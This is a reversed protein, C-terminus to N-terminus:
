KEIYIKKMQEMVISIDFKRVDTQAAAGMEPTTKALADAFAAADLPNCVLGSHGHRILDVNGRTRSVVCPLGAAMAEMLSLSLGERLSPFVFIDAMHLLNVIDDRYGLLILQHSINREAAMQRLKNEQNGEGAIIYYAGKDMAQIVIQHNKNKNLEGISLLVKANQPIGFHARMEDRSIIPQTFKDCDVGIGPIYHVRAAKIKNKAITYDESNLTILDDTYRALWKEIPYYLLWNIAPASKYFHFGHATYIIRAGTRRAALRTLVGGMPTHCHIVDYKEARIIARLRRYAWLNDLRFPSRCVPIFHFKDCYPIEENGSTAVHTEYGQEKFWRLYPLHFSTIHRTITAVFLVKM